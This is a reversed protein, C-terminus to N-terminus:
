SAVGGSVGAASPMSAPHDLRRLELLRSLYTVWLLGALREGDLVLVRGLGDQALEMAAPGLEGDPSLVLTRDLPLTNLRPWSLSVLAEHGSAPDLM